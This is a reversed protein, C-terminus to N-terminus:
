ILSQVGTSRANLMLKNCAGIYFLELFISYKYLETLLKYKHNLVQFQLEAIFQLLRLILQFM